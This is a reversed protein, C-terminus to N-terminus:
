QSCHQFLKLVLLSNYTATMRKFVGKYFFFIRTVYKPNLLDCEFLFSLLMKM